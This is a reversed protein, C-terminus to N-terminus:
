GGGLVILLRVALLGVDTESSALADLFGFSSITLSRSAM